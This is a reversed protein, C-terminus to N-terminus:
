PVFRVGDEDVPVRLQEGDDQVIQAGLLDVDLRAINPHQPM